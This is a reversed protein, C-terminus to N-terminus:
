IHTCCFSELHSRRDAIFFHLEVMVLSFSCQSLFGLEFGDAAFMFTSKEIESNLTFSVM